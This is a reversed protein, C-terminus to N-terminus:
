MLSLVDAASPIIRIGPDTSSWLELSGSGTMVGAYDVGADRASQYDTPSDGVFLMESLGVGLADAMHYMAKPSPKADAMGFDDRGHVADFFGLMGYQALVMEAYEHGARTVVGLRVGSDKLEALADTIGDIMSSSEAGLKEIALCREDLLRDLREREPSRGHHALWDYLPQRSSRDRDEWIEDVPFGMPMLVYRNVDDLAFRDVDTNVLTGDLDFAIAKYRM